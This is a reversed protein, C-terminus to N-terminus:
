RPTGTAAPDLIGPHVELIGAAARARILGLQNAKLVFPLLEEGSEGCVQAWPSELLRSGSHGQLRGLWMALAATGPTPEVPCRIKRVRGRLLGAQAWSSAVNRATAELVSDSLRQGATERLQALLDARIMEAGERLGVVLFTTAALLPDRAIATLLALRPRGPRDIDWLRRLIRFVPIRPDLGYLERLRQLSLRRTAATPKALVNESVVAQAYAEREAGPPVVAFLEKLDKLMITRSTHTGRAGLRFGVRELNAHSASLAAQTPM